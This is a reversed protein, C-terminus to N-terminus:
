FSLQPEGFQGPQQPDEHYAARRAEDLSIRGHAHLVAIIQLRYFDPVTDELENLETARLVRRAHNPRQTISLQELNRLATFLAAEAPTAGDPLRQELYVARLEDVSIAYPDAVASNMLNASDAPLHPRQLPPAGAPLYSNALRWAAFCAREGLTTLANTGDTTPPVGTVPTTQGTATAPPVTQAPTAPQLPQMALVRENRANLQAVARTHRDITVFGQDRLLNIAGISIEHETGTLAQMTAVLANFRELTIGEPLDGDLEYALTIENFVIAPLNAYVLAPEWWGPQHHILEAQLDRERALNIGLRSIIRIADGTTMVGSSVLGTLYHACTSPDDVCTAPLPGTLINFLGFMLEQQDATGEQEASFILEGQPGREIFPLREPPTTTFALEWGLGLDLFPAVIRSFIARYQAATIIGNDRLENLALELENANIIVNSQLLTDIRQRLAESTYLGHANLVFSFQLNQETTWLDPHIDAFHERLLDLSHVLGAYLTQDGPSLLSAINGDQPATALPAPLQIGTNAALETALAWMSTAVGQFPIGTTTTSTATTTPTIPTRPTVPTSPTVTTPTTTTVVTPAGTTPAPTGAAQSPQRDRLMEELLTAEAAADNATATIQQVQQQTLLGADQLDNLREAATQRSSLMTILNVVNPVQQSNPLPVLQYNQVYRNGDITQSTEHLPPLNAFLFAERWWEPVHTNAIAQLLEATEPISAHGMLFATRELSVLNHRLLISLHHAQRSGADTNALAANNTLEAFAERIAVNTCSDPLTLAGTAPDVILDPLQGPLAQVAFRWGEAFREHWRVATLTDIYMEVYRDHRQEATQATTRLSSLMNQLDNADYFNRLQLAPAFVEDSLLRRLLAGPEHSSPRINRITQGNITLEQDRWEVNRFCILAELVDTPYDRFERQEADSVANQGLAANIRTRQDAIHIALLRNVDARIARQQTAILTRREAATNAQVLGHLLNQSTTAEAPLQWLASEPVAPNIAGRELQLGPFNFNFLFQSTSRSAQLAEGWWYTNNASAALAIETPDEPREPNPAMGAQRMYTTRTQASPITRIHSFVTQVVPEATDSISWTGDTNQTVVGDTTSASMTNFADQWAAPMNMMNAALSSDIAAQNIGTGTGAGVETRISRQRFRTVTITQLPGTGTVTASAAGAGPAPPAPPAPPQRHAANYNAELNNEQCWALLVALRAARSDARVLSDRLRMINPFTQQDAASPAFQNDQNRVLRVGLAQEAEQWWFINQAANSLLSQEDAQDPREPDNLLGFLRTAAPYETINTIGQAYALYSTLVEASPGNPAGQTVTWQNNAFVLSTEPPLNLRTNSGPLILWATPPAQTHGAGDAPINQANFPPPPPPPPPALTSASGSAGQVPLSEIAAMLQDLQAAQEASLRARLRESHTQLRQRVDREIFSRQIEEPSRAALDEIAQQATELEVQQLLAGHANVVADLRSQYEAETGDQNVQELQHFLDIWQPQNSLGPISWVIQQSNEDFVPTAILNTPLFYRQRLENVLGQNWFPPQYLPDTQNGRTEWREIVLRAADDPSARSVDEAFDAFELATTQAEQEAQPPVTDTLYTWEGDEMQTFIIAPEGTFRRINNWINM